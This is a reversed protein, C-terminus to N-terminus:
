TYDTRAQHGLFGTSLTPDGPVLTVAKHTSPTLGLNESFATLTRLQQAM